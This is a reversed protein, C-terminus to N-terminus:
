SASTNDVPADGSFGGIGPCQDARVMKGHAVNGVHFLDHRPRLVALSTPRHNHAAAINPEFHGLLELPAIKLDGDDFGQRLHHRREVRLHGAHSCASNRALPTANCRLSGTAANSAGVAGSGARADMTTSLLPWRRGASETIRPRPTFGSTPAPSSSGAQFDALPAADAHVNMQLGAIRVDPRDAVRNLNPIRNRALPTQDRQRARGVTLTADGGVVDEASGAAVFACQARRDQPQEIEGRAAGARVLFCQAFSPM